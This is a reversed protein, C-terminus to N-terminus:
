SLLLFFFRSFTQEVYRCFNNSIKRPRCFGSVRWTWKKEHKEMRKEIETIKRIREKGRRKQGVRKKETLKRKREKREKEKNEKRIKEKKENRKKDKRKM